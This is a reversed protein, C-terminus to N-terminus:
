KKWKRCVGQLVELESDILAEWKCVPLNRMVFLLTDASQLANELTMYKLMGHVLKKIKKKIRIEEVDM